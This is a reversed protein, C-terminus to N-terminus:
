YSGEQKRGYVLAKENAEKLSTAKILVFCEQYLPKYEPASSSSEYLIMAIYFSQEKSTIEIEM